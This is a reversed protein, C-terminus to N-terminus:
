KLSSESLLLVTKKYKGTFKNNELNMTKEFHISRYIKKLIRLFIIFRQFRHIIINQIRKLM